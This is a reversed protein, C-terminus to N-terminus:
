GSIMTRDLSGTRGPSAKQVGVTREMRMVDVMGVRETILAHRMFRRAM